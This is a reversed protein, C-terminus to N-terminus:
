QQIKGDKLGEKNQNLRGRQSGDIHPFGHKHM